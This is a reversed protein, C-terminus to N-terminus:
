GRFGIQPHISEWTNEEEETLDFVRAILVYEPADANTEVGFHDAIEGREEGDGTEENCFWETIDEMEFHDMAEEPLQKAIAIPVMIELEWSSKRNNVGDGDLIDQLRKNFAEFFSPDPKKVPVNTM